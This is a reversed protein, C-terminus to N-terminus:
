FAGIQGKAESHGQDSTESKADVRICNTIGWPGNRAHIGLM